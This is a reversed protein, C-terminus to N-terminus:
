EKTLTVTQTLSDDVGMDFIFSGTITTTSVTANWLMASISASGIMGEGSGNLKGSSGDVSGSFVWIEGTGGPDCESGTSLTTVVTGSVDFTGEYPDALTGSGSVEVSVAGSIAHKWVCGLGTETLSGSFNGSYQSNAGGTGCNRFCPESVPTLWAPVTRGTAKLLEREAQFPNYQLQNKLEGAKVADIQNSFNADLIHTRTQVATISFFIDPQALDLFLGLPDPLLVNSAVSTVFAELMRYTETNKINNISDSVAQAPYVRERYAFDISQGVVNSELYNALNQTALDEADIAMYVKELQAIFEEDSITGDLANQELQVMSAIIVVSDGTNGSDSGTDGTADSSGSGSDGACGASVTLCSILITLIISQFKNM